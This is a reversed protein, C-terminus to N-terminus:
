IQLTRGAYVILLAVCTNICVQFHVNDDALGHIVMYDKARFGDMQRVASTEYGLMNDRPLKM